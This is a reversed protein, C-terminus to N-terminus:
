LKPYKHVSKQKQPPIEFDNAHNSAMEYLPVTAAAGKFVSIGNRTNDTFHNNQIDIYELSDGQRWRDWMLAKDAATYNNRTRYTM